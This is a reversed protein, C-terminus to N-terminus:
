EQGTVKNVIEKAEGLIGAEEPHEQYYGKVNEKYKEQAAIKPKEDVEIAKEYVKEPDQRAQDKEIEQLAENKEMVAYSPQTPLTFWSLVNFLSILALLLVGRGLLKRFNFILRQM